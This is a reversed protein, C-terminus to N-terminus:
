IVNHHGGQTRPPLLTPAVACSVWYEGILTRVSWGLLDGVVALMEFSADTLM